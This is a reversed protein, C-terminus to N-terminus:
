EEEVAPELLVELIKDWTDFFDDPWKDIRGNRDIRPSILEAKHQQDKQFFHLQVKHPNLQGSHVALRIGNLVHDSHTEIVIQVGCSAALALLQGMQSQGKPHLHSEPNEVLILTEPEAALIAVLIPLSYTVGFGVNFPSYGGRSGKFSYKLTVIQTQINQETKISIGPSIEGMWADVQDKLSDSKAKPHSLKKNPIDQNGFADLFHTAYEGNIGLQKKQIVDFESMQYSSQPGIREAKLYYFNDKFISSKYIEPEVKESVVKLIDLEKSSSFCWIGKQENELDIEFRILEDEAYEFLADQGTGIYVQEDKLILGKNPLLDRQYSRRLLMLAQLVSSKGTSNLGSLLTLPKFSISQDQFSKFNILRLNEIM